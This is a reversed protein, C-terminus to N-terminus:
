KLFSFFCRVRCAVVGLLMPPLLSVSLDSQCIMMGDVPMGETCPGRTCLVLLAVSVQRSDCRAARISSTVWHGVLQM